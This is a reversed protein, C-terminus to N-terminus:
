KSGLRYGRGSFPVFQTNRTISSDEATQVFDSAISNCPDICRHGRGSFPVFQSPPSNIKEDEAAFTVRRVPPPEVYDLPAEFDVNLDTDIISIIEEPQTEMIDIKFVKGLAKYNLEITQGQNIVPYDESMIKELLAKPDSLEIFATKHPRLKVYEGKPPSVKEIEVEEGETLGLTEMIHYPIHCIGPSASFEHVSCVEGFEIQKNVVKFFLIDNEKFLDQTILEHLVNSPLLIKNSHRCRNIVEKSQSSCTFSFCSLTIKYSM